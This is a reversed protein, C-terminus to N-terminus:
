GEGAGTVYSPVKPKVAGGGGGGPAPAPAPVPSAVSEPVAAVPTDQSEDTGAPPPSVVRIVPTRRSRAKRRARQPKATRARRAPKAKAAKPAAFKLEPARVRKPPRSGLRVAASAPVVARQEVTPRAAATTTPESVDSSSIIRGFPRGGAGIWIVLVIVAGLAM